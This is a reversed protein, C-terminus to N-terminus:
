SQCEIIEPEHIRFEWVLLWLKIFPPFKFKAFEKVGAAVNKRGFKSNWLIFETENFSMGDAGFLDKKCFLIRKDKTLIRHMREIYDCQYGKALFWQKTRLKYYNGRNKM